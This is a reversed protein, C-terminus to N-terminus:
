KMMRQGTVSNPNVWIQASLNRKRKSKGGKRKGKKVYSKKKM